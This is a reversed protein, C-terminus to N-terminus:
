ERGTVGECTKGRPHFLALPNKKKKKVTTKPTISAKKGGLFSWGEFVGGRAVRREERENADGEAIFGGKSRSGVDSLRPGKARYRQKLSEGTRTGKAV